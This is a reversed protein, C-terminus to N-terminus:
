DEWILVVERIYSRINERGRQGATHMCYMKRPHREIWHKERGRQRRQKDNKGEEAKFVWSIPWMRPTGKLVFWISKYVWLTQDGGTGQGWLGNCFGLNSVMFALSITRVSGVIKSRSDPEYKTMFFRSGLITKNRLVCPGRRRKEIFIFHWFSKVKNDQRDQFTNTTLFGLCWVM